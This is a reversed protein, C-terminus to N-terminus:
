RTHIESTPSVFDEPAFVIKHRYAACIDCIIGDGAMNTKTNEEKKRPTPINSKRNERRHRINITGQSRVCMMSSVCCKGVVYECAASNKNEWRRHYKNIKVKSRTPLVRKM